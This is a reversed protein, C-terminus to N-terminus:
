LDDCGVWGLYSNYPVGGTNKVTSHGVTVNLSCRPNTAVYTAYAASAAAEATAPDLYNCGSFVVHNFKLRQEDKKAECNNGRVVIPGSSQRVARARFRRFCQADASEELMTGFLVFSCVIVLLPKM